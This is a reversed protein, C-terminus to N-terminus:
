TYIDSRLTLTPFKHRSQELQNEMSAHGFPIILPASEGNMRKPLRANAFTKPKGKEFPLTKQKQKKLSPRPPVVVGGGYTTWQGNFIVISPFAKYILPKFHNKKQVVNQVFNM